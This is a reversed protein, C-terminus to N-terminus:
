FINEFDTLKGRDNDPMKIEKSYIMHKDDGSYKEIIILSKGGGVLSSGGSYRGKAVYVDGNYEGIVKLPPMGEKSEAEPGWDVSYGQAHTINLSLSFLSILLLKNLRM